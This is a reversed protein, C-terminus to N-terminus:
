RRQKLLRRHRKSLRANTWDCHEAAYANLLAALCLCAATRAFPQPRHQTHCICRHRTRRRLVKNPLLVKPTPYCTKRGIANLAALNLCIWAFAVAGFDGFPFADMGPGSLWGTVQVEQKSRRLTDSGHHSGKGNDSTQQVAPTQSHNDDSSRAPGSPDQVLDM